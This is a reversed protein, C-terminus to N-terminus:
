ATTVLKRVGAITPNLATETELTARETGHWPAGSEPEESLECTNEAHRFNHVCATRHSIVPLTISSQVAM